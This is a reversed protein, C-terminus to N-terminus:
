ASVVYRVDLPVNELLETLSDEPFLLYREATLHHKFV